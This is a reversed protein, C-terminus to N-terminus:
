DGLLLSRFIKLIVKNNSNDFLNGGLGIKECVIKWYKYVMINKKYILRMFIKRFDLYYIFSKNIM